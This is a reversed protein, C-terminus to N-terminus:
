RTRYGDGPVGATLPSVKSTVAQFGKADPIGRSFGKFINVLILTRSRAFLYAKRGGKLRILLGGLVVGASALMLAPLLFGAAIAITFLIVTIIGFLYVSFVSRHAVLLDRTIQQFGYHRFIQGVGTFYRSKEDLESKTREKEMHYVMPVDLRRITVGQQLVRFGLEREEEGKVFPNFTGARDLIERRYVGSGALYRVNGFVYRNKHNFNLGEGPYVRYLGGAVAGVSTDKLEALATELWGDILIMDGDLFFIYKGSAHLTGLYRGASPSLEQCKDIRLITVPFERAIEVTRDTSASDVLIIETELGATRELLSNLCAGIAAEENKSIIVISLDMPGGLQM